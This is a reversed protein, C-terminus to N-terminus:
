RCGAPSVKSCNVNIGSNAGASVVALMISLSVGFLLSFVQKRMRGGQKTSPPLSFEGRGTRLAGM